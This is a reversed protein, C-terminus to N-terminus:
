TRLAKEIRRDPVFWLCTVVGLVCGAIWSCGFLALPISIVYSTLSVKGKIDAGIAAALVSQRGHLDIIQMQLLLYAIACMLLDLAYLAVPAEAFHNEGMWGTTFPLLSLWFLLHINGWLIRGNVQKVTHLLHHHNNWYIGVNLFSLM